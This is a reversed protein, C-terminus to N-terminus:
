PKVEGREFWIIRNQIEVIRVTDGKAHLKVAHDVANERVLTELVNYWMPTYRSGGLLQVIYEFAPVTPAMLRGQSTKVEESM